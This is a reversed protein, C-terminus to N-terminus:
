QQNSFIVAKTNWELPPEDPDTCVPLRAIRPVGITM